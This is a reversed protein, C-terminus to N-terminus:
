APIPSVDMRRSGWSSLLCTHAVLDDWSGADRWKSEVEAVQLGQEVTAETGELEPGVQTRPPGGLPSVPAPGVRDPGGIFATHGQWGAGGRM